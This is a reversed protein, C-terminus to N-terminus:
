NCGFCNLLENPLNLDESGKLPENLIGKEDIVNKFAKAYETLNGRRAKITNIIKQGDLDRINKPWANLAEILVSDTLQKQLKKAEATFLAEDTNYLFYRDFPYVLGPMFDIENKFSQLEPVVHKSSLISPILGESKFFANDRDGALPIAIYNNNTQKLIWGYQKAHRDWDGILFDFLRVRILTPKDIIVNNEPKLKFEQLDDTEIIEKVNKYNTWNSDSETEHELLYLRNGYKANFEGLVDQKPIFVVKPQTSLINAQKALAAALIAGYPHQASIGDVIINELGFTKAFEPILAEPDKNVGRLTYKIGKKSQLKISHTQKGGGEKLISLGGKLSDLFVVPAKIPTEWAKRYQEGQMLKKIDDAQYLVSAAIVVSDIAKFNFSEINDINILEGKSFTKETSSVSWYLLLLFIALLIIFFVGIKKM